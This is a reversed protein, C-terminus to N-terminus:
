LPLMLRVRAAEYYVEIEECHQLLPPLQTLLCLLLTAPFFLTHNPVDKLALQNRYTGDAKVTLSRMKSTYHLLEQATIKVHIVMM